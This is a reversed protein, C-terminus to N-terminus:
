PGGIGLALRAGGWLVHWGLAYTLRFALAVLIGHRRLLALEVLVVALALGSAPVPLPTAGAALQLGPEVAAALLIAPWARRFVAHVLALPVLHLLAVAVVAISPYYLWAEPWPVNLDRPYPRALDIAVAVPILAAGTYVARAMGGGSSPQAFFGGRRLSWLAATGAVTAAALMLLPPAGFGTAAYRAQAEPPLFPIASAAAFCLGAFLAEHRWSRAPKAEATDPM